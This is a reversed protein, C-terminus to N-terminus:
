YFIETITNNINYWVPEMKFTPAINCQGQGHTCGGVTQRNMWQDLVLIITMSVELVRSCFPKM